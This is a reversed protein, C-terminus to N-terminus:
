WLEFMNKFTAAPVYETVILDCAPHTLADCDATTVAWGCVGAVGCTVIVCGVQEVAVPVIVTVEVPTLVSRYLM